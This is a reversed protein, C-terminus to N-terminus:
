EGYLNYIPSNKITKIPSFIFIYKAEFIIIKVRLYQVINWPQNKPAVVLIDKVFRYSGDLTPGHGDVTGALVESHGV